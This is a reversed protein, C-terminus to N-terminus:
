AEADSICVVSTMLLASELIAVDAERVVASTVVSAPFECNEALNESVSCSSLVVCFTPVAVFMVEVAALVVLSSCEVRLSVNDASRLAVVCCGFAVVLCGVMTWVLNEFTVDTSTVDSALVVVDVNIVSLSIAVILAIDSISLDSNEM